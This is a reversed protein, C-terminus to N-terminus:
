YYNAKVGQPLVPLGKKYLHSTDGVNLARPVAIGELREEFLITTVSTTPLWFSSWVLQYPISLLYSLYALGFGNHCFLFIKRESRERIRYISNADKEYGLTALFRDSSEALSEFADSIKSEDPTLGSYLSSDYNGDIIKHYIEGPIDWAAVRGIFSEPITLFNWERAWDLIEAKLGTKNESHWATRKARGLPSTYLLDPKEDAIREALAQAELEGQSTLTDNQYDPDGHRVIYLRM